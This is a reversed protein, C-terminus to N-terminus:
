RGAKCTAYQQSSNHSLNSLLWETKETKERQGIIITQNKRASEMTVFSCHTVHALQEFPILTDGGKRILDIFATIENKHGKDQRLTKLKRFGTFGYGKTARFNEMKLVRGDSFVELSEKPYSKSGNAFYNVTGISGDTFNLIISMKDERVAPSYGVTMASVAHVPSEAIYSLLDIFHCGEGIIRGGGREPDQTWHDAAIEGANVTMNMCLPGCRKSLLKKIKITHPSFRRNFGVMLFKDPYKKVTETIERLQRETIALPKEVFVHKGAELGEIVMRAHTHHGTAIFVTNVEKDDLILRYDTVANEIRFKEAAHRINAVRTKGAIYKLRANAAKLCPLITGVAFNGAGIVGVTVNSSPKGTRQTVVV